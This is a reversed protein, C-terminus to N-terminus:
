IKELKTSSNQLAHLDLSLTQLRNVAMEFGIIIEKIVESIPSLGKVLGAIQGAAL